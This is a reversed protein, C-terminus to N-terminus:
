VSWRFGERVRHVCVEPPHEMKSSQWQVKLADPIYFVDPARSRFASLILTNIALHRLRSFPRLASDPMWYTPDDQYTPCRLTLSVIRDAYTTFFEVALPVPIHEWSVDRVDYVILDASKTRSAFPLALEPFAVDITRWCHINNLALQRWRSCVQSLPLTLDSKHEQRLMEAVATFILSLEDNGLIRNIASIRSNRSRRLKLLYNEVDSLEELLTFPDHQSVTKLRHEAIFSFPKWVDDDQTLTRFYSNLLSAINGLLPAM